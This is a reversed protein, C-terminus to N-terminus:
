IDLMLNELLLRVNVNEALLIGAEEIKSLKEAALFREEGEVFLKARFYMVLADLFERAKERDEIGEVFKFRAVITGEEMLFQVEDDMKKREEKKKKREVFRMVRVRSVITPLLETFDSCTLLFVTGSPPEELTKLFANAAALTMREVNEVVVFRMGGATTRFVVETLDQVDKIKISESGELVVLDAKVSNEKAFGLAFEFVGSDEGLFLYAHAARGSGFERRLIEGEKEFM